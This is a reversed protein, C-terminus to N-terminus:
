WYYHLDFAIYTIKENNFSSIHDAYEDGVVAEIGTREVLNVIAVPGYLEIEESIHKELAVQNEEYGPFLIILFCSWPTLLLFLRKSKHIQPPPRYKYGQQSWFLPISGRIQVFSVVHSKYQLIQETEVYNACHGHEDLGRRKYRTGVRHRSRRSIM